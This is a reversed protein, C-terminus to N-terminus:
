TGPTYSYMRLSSKSAPHIQSPATFTGNQPTNKAQLFISPRAILNECLSRGWTIWLFGEFRGYCLAVVDHGEPVTFAHEVFGQALNKGGGLKADLPQARVDDSIVRLFASESLIQM